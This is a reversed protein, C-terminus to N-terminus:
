GQDRGPATRARRGALVQRARFLRRVASRGYRMVAYRSRHSIFTPTEVGGYKAKIEGGGGMDYYLAGSGRWLRMAEWHLLENPHLDAYARRFAAGWLIASKGRGIVVSTAISVGDPARVRVLVVQGSPQLYRILQRVREVGYTPVLNQRAFVEVLQEYFEDAFTENTAQEV